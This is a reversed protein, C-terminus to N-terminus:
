RRSKHTTKRKGPWRTRLPGDKGSSLVSRPASCWLRAGHDRGPGEFGEGEAREGLGVPRHLHAAVEAPTIGPELESLQVGGESASATRAVVLSSRIAQDGFSVRGKGPAASQASGVM